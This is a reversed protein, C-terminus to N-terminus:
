DAAEHGAEFPCRLPEHEVVPARFPESLVAAAQPPTARFFGAVAQVAYGVASALGESLSGGSVTVECDKCDDGGAARTVTSQGLSVFLGEPGIHGGCGLLLVALLLVTLRM